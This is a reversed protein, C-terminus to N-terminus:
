VDKNDGLLWVSSVNFAKSYKEATEADLPKIAEEHQYYNKMSWGFSVSAHNATPFGANVRAQRLRDAILKKGIVAQQKIKVNNSKQKNIVNTKPNYELSCDECLSSLWDGNINFAKSYIQATKTNFSKTGEEHQLYTKIKWGFTVSAHNATPFGADIRAERLRYAALEKDAKSQQKNNLDTM